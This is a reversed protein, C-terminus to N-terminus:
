RTTDQQDAAFVLNWHRRAEDRDAPDPIADLVQDPPVGDVNALPSTAVLTMLRQHRELAAVGRRDSRRIRTATTDLM